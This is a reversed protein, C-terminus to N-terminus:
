NGFSVSARYRAPSHSTRSAGCVALARVTGQSTAPLVWHGLKDDSLPLDHAVYGGSGVTVATILYEQDVRSTSSLLVFGDASWGLTGDARDYYGIEPIAIDDICFGMGELTDDTRSEFRLTVVRGTYPSLDVTQKKWGVSHGTLAAGPNNGFPNAATTDESQLLHWSAGNDTSVAVFAWDYLEELDYWTWYTLTATHTNSLDITRTLSTAALNMTNSWWFSPASHPVVPIVPVNPDGCFDISAASPNDLIVFDCGYQAVTDSISGDQSLVHVSNPCAPRPPPLVANPDLHEALYDTVWERFFSSFNGPHGHSALYQDFAATGTAPSIAIAALAEQGYKKGWLNMLSLSVAYRDPPASRLPWTLLPADFCTLPIEPATTPRGTPGNEVIQSLGENVWTSENPDILHHLLHQFEHALIGASCGASSNCTSHNIYIVHKNNSYPHQAPTVLDASSFYGGMDHLRAYVVDVPWLDIGRTALTSLLAALIGDALFTELDEVARLMSTVPVQERGDTWVRFPGVSGVLHMSLLSYEGHQGNAIWFQQVEDSNHYAAADSAVSPPCLSSLVAPATPLASDSAHSNPQGASPSFSVALVAFSAIVALLVPFSRSTARV